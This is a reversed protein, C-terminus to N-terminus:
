GHKFIVGLFRFFSWLVVAFLFVGAIWHWDMGAVGPIIEQSTVVTGNDLTQSVTQTKPSYTGFVSAVIGSMSENPQDVGDDLGSTAYGQTKLSDFDEQLSDFNEQLSNYDDMLDDYKGQLVDHSSNLASYNDELKDYDGLLANYNSRIEDYDAQSIGAAVTETGATGATEAYAPVCCVCISLVCVFVAFYKKM